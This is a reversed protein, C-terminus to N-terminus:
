ADLDVKTQGEAEAKAYRRRAERGARKIKRERTERMTRHLETCCLRPRTAKHGSYDFMPDFVKECNGWACTARRSPPPTWPMGRKAMGQCRTSCFKRPKRGPLGRYSVMPDFRTRQCHPCLALHSPDPM